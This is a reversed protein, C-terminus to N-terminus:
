DDLLLYGFSTIVHKVSKIVIVMLYSVHQETGDQIIVQVLDKSKLM